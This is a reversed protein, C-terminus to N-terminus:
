AFGALNRATHLELATARSPGGGPTVPASPTRRGRIHPTRRRQAALLSVPVTGECRVERMGQLDRIRLHLATKGFEGASQLPFRSGSLNLRGLATANRRFKTVSRIGIFVLNRYNTKANEAAAANELQIQEETKM